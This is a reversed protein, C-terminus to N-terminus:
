AAASGRTKARKSSKKTNASKRTRATAARNSTARRTGAPRPKSASRRETPIEARAEAVTAEDLGLVDLLLRCDDADVASAAIVRVTRRQWEAHLEEEAHMRELDASSVPTGDVTMANHGVM